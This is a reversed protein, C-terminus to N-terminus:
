RITDLFNHESSNNADVIIWVKCALYVCFDIASMIFHPSPNADADCFVMHHEEPYEHLPHQAMETIVLTRHDHPFSAVFNQYRYRKQSLTDQFLAGVRINTAIQTSSNFNKNLDEALSRLKNEIEPNMLMKKKFEDYKDQKKQNPNKIIPMKKLNGIENRFNTM